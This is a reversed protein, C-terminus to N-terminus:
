EVSKTLVAYMNDSFAFRDLFTQRSVKFGAEQALRRLTRPTFYNVHDPFRFGCWKRGRLKRNWCAFNPVKLVIAGDATLVPYLRKMISLPRREHELFSSMTAVHISDREFHAIGDHANSSIVKGGLPAARAASHSALQRSVEIGCPVVERGIRAFRDHIEAMFGGHGCGVDLINLPGTRHRDQAVSFTLSAIKNRRPCAISRVMKSLSSLHSWIPEEAERRRSEATSTDEWALESELQSYDPPNALFVFGTERCRVLSWSDRRYGTEDVPTSRELIPCLYEM